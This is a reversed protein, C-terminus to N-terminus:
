LVTVMQFSSLLFDQNQINGSKLGGTNQDGRYLLCGNLNRTMMQHSDFICEALFKNQPAEIIKSQAMKIITIKNRVHAM